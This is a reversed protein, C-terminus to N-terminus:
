IKMRNGGRKNTYTAGLGLVNIGNPLPCCAQGPFSSALNSINIM